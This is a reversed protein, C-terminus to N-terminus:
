CRSNLLQRLLNSICTMFLLLATYTLYLHQILKFKTDREVKSRPTLQMSLWLVCFVQHWIISCIIFQVRASLGWTLMQLSNLRCCWPMFLNVSGFNFFSVSINSLRCLLSNNQWACMCILQMNVTKHKRASFICRQLAFMVRDLFTDLFCWCTM